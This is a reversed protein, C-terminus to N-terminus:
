KINKQNEHHEEKIGMIWTALFASVVSVALGILYHILNPLGLPATIAIMPIGTLGYANAAVHMYAVYAGGLAGGIAAGMFPKVLRLNIGFIVPEIIGLFSSFAAPIAIEKLKKNKTKFFVALAAGGQAVNAMSWIPLLFNVGVKPDALLGAEIAHISHHLGSIVIFTYIGGLLFGAMLGGFQFLHVLSETILHGIWMGLPGMVFLSIFGTFAVTLFPIVLLDLHEPVWKRLGKEIKSMVYVSLLIPIVTGQYGILAINLGLVDIYEPVRTGLESPNLLAPHTLIGGIVAGLFPHSGFEKASSFGILIPLIIFASSSLIHLITMWSSDPAIWDFAKVMGIFGMLLGSAVIAPIIPVFIGSLTKVFRTILSPETRNEEIRPKPHDSVTGEVEMLVKYIRNVKGAGFIIQIQGHRTYVGEVSDVKEIAELDALAEDQLTLRLRSACHTAGTINENGGVLPLLKKVIEKSNM